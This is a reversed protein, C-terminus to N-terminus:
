RNSDPYLAMGNSFVIKVLRSNNSGNKAPHAVLTIQDGPKLTDKDWGAKVFVNPGGRTEVAWKQINGKDDRVVIYIMGHPNVFEFNTVTAKMSTSHAM